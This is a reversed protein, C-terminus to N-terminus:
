HLKPGYPIFGKDRVAGILTGGDLWWQGPGDPGGSRPFTGRMFRSFAVLCGTIAQHREEPTANTGGHYLNHDGRTGHLTPHWGSQWLTRQIGKLGMKAWAAPLVPPYDVPPLPLRLWTPLKGAANPVKVIIEKDNKYLVCEISFM